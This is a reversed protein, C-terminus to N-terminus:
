SGGEHAADDDVRGAVEADFLTRDFRGPGALDGDPDLGPADAARVQMVEVMATEAEHPQPLRHDKAM